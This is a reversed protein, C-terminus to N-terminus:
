STGPRHASCAARPGEVHMLEHMVSDNRLIHLAKRALDRTPSTANSSARGPRPLGFPELRGALEAAVLVSLFREYPSRVTAVRLMNVNLLLRSGNPSKFTRNREGSCRGDWWAPSSVLTDSAAFPPLHINAGHTGLSVICFARGACPMPSSQNAGIQPHSYLQHKTAESATKPIPLYHLITCGDCACACHELGLMTCSPPM